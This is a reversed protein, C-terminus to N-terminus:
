KETVCRTSECQVYVIGQACAIQYRERNSEMSLLSSAPRVGANGSCGSRMATAEAEFAMTGPHKSAMEQTPNAPPPPNSTTNYSGYAETAPRTEGYHGKRTLNAQVTEPLSWMAGTIPDTVLIGIINGFMFNGFYWGNISADVRESAGNYGDHSFEVRYTEGDFYGAKGSLAVTFPTTGSHVTEGRKNKITFASKEPNSKIAVPWSSKSMISACGSMFIVNVLLAARLFKNQIVM